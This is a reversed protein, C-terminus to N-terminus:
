NLGRMAIERSAGSDKGIAVEGASDKGCEGVVSQTAPAGDTNSAVLADVNEDNSCVHYAFGGDRGSSWSCGESLLIGDESGLADCIGVWSLLEDVIQGGEEFM